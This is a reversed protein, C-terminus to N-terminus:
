FCCICVRICGQVIRFLKKVLYCRRGTIVYKGAVRWTRVEKIWSCVFQNYAELSKHAKFQKVTVFNTQLVLYSVLDSADVPPVAAEVPEGLCGSFPDLGHIASIKDQYRTKAESSLSETYSSLRQM